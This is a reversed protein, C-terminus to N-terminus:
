NKELWLKMLAWAAIVQSDWIEGSRIAVDIQERTMIVPETHERPEAYREQEELDELLYVSVEEMSFAPASAFTGLHTIRKALYGVEEVAERVITAEPNEGEDIAGQVHSLSVRDFLFRYERLMVFTGDVKRVFGSVANRNKHFYYEGEPGDDIQFTHVYYGGYPNENLPETKIKKWKPM